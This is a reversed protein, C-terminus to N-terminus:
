GHKVMLPLYIPKWQARDAMQWIAALQYVADPIGEGICYAAADSWNAPSRAVRKKL